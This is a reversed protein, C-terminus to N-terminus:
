SGVRQYTNEFDDQIVHAEGSEQVIYDQDLKRVRYQWKPPLKLRSALTALADETLTPDVIQSYSQMIYVKGDPAVLEYVLKASSFVYTNTREITYETYPKRKSGGIVSRQPIRITALLRLQLGDFSVVEGPNEIANKDMLFYRPGNMVIAKAKFQKKLAETKLAMWQEQPCDNLGLSNYVKGELHNLHGIIVFIECYRVGRLNDRMAVVPGTPTDDNM